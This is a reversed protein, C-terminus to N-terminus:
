KYLFSCPNNKNSKLCMAIFAIVNLIILRSRFYAKLTSFILISGSIVNLEYMKSLCRMYAFFRLRM